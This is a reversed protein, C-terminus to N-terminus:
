QGILERYAAADLLNDLESPESMEIKAMWGDGYPDSNVTEPADELAENIEAVKGSVPAYLEGVTKVAEVSGIEDGASVTEGADNMDVFVVDGLESQAYDTVGVVAVGDKVEVWEHEKTYKLHEPVNM